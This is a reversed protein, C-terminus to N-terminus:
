ITYLTSVSNKTSLKVYKYMYYDSIEVDKQLYEMPLDKGAKHRDDKNFDDVEEQTALKNSLSSKFEEINLNGILNDYSKTTTGLDNLGFHEYPYLIKTKCHYIKAIQDVPMALFKYSDLLKLSGISFAKSM